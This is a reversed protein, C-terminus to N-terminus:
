IYACLRRLSEGTARLAPGHPISVKYEYISTQWVGPVPIEDFSGTDFGEEYFLEKVDYISPYYRFKWNGNLLQFRDSDERNRVLGETHASAPIYYARNPMTHDHLMHLDEYYKPVIM